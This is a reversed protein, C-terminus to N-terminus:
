TSTTESAIRARTNAKAQEHLAARETPSKDRALPALAAIEEMYIDLMRNIDM